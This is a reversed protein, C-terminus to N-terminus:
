FQITQLGTVTHVTYDNVADYTITGGTARVLSGKYRIVVVGSGGATSNYNTGAWSGGSGGGYTTLGIFTTNGGVAGAGGGIFAM